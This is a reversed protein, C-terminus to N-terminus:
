ETERKVCVMLGKGVPLVSMDVRADQRAHAILSALDDQHSIANDAVLLGGRALRPVFEEYLEAYMEKECDMFAFGIDEYSSLHGRADGNILQVKNGVGAKEFTERAIEAKERLLEFTILQVGPRQIALSLWLASYGGSTGVEILAGDPASAALLALLMGTEPPVQRLRKLHPTGDDRDKADRAELYSMREQLPKPMDAFLHTM